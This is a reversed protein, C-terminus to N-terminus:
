YVEQQYCKECYVIEPRAPSYNTIIESQCKACSRNWFKYPGRRTIRDKHRCFFCKRPIPLIMKRYFLLEQNTIKYNRNCEICALIENTISNQVDKIHDPIDKLQITEKGETKQIDKEWRFGQSLAEKKALPMNDQAITENYAFASLEPPMMLGHSDSETLEKVINEKIEEYEKKSYQKNLICYSANDLGDCGICDHCNRSSFSYIVNQCNVLHCSGIVNTSYGVAVCELLLESQFGYGITGISDKIEKSSFIYKCDEAKAVEFGYHVNKCELLYDGVSKITQTNNNEKRPFKFSFEKFKKKMEEMKSFSGMIEGVRRNYEERPLPENFFHYSKNRLNVCGFCNNINRCDLVFVSDLSEFTNRGFIIGNSGAINVGEYCRELNIGFYIDTSDRSDRVGRSYLVEEAPGTNFVLYCNKLGGAMNSYNSNINPGDGTSLFTTNKPVKNLLDKLQDFFTRTTDYKKGFDRPTWSDSMYCERCYVTYPSKPNYMTVISKGCRDCKKGSYLTTENRWMARMKFRCDPCIKPAPVKMKEYFSFDDPEIEFNQKCKKCNKTESKM